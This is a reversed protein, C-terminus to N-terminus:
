LAWIHNGNGSHLRKLIALNDETENLMRKLLNQKDVLSSTKQIMGAKALLMMRQELPLLREHDLVALAAIAEALLATIAYERSVM